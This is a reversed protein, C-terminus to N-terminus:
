QFLLSNHPELYYETLFAFAIKKYKQVYEDFKSTKGFYVPKQKKQIATRTRIFTITHIYAHRKNLVTPSTLTYQEVDSLTSQVCKIYSQVSKGYFISISFFDIFWFISLYIVFNHLFYYFVYVNVKTCVM